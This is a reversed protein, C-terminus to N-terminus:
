ASTHASQYLIIEDLRIPLFKDVSGICFAAPLNKGISQACSVHFQIVIAFRDDGSLRFGWANECKPTL